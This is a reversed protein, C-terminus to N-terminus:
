TLPALTQINVSTNTYQQQLAFSGIMNSIAVTENNDGFFTSNLHYLSIYELSDNSRIM